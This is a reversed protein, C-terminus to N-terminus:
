IDFVRYECVGRPAVGGAGCEPPQLLWPKQPAAYAVMSILWCAICAAIGLWMFKCPACPVSIERLEDDTIRDTGYLPNRPDNLPLMTRREHWTEDHFEGAM